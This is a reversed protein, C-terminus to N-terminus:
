ESASTNNWNIMASWNLANISEHRTLGTFGNYIGSPKHDRSICYTAISYITSNIGGALAGINTIAINFRKELLLTSNNHDASNMSMFNNLHKIFESDRLQTPKRINKNDIADAVSE